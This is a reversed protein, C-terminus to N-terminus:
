FPSQISTFFSNKFLDNLIIVIFLMCSLTLNGSSYKWM